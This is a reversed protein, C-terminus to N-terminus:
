TEYIKFYQILFISKIKSNGMLLGNDLHYVEM